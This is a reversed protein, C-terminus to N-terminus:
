SKGNEKFLDFDLRQQQVAQDSKANETNDVFVVWQSESDTFLHLDVFQNHIFQTNHIVVPENEGPLLGELFDYTELVSDNRKISDLGFHVFEGGSLQVVNFMDLGIYAYSRDGANIARIYRVISLPTSARM